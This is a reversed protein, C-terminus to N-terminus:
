AADALKIIEAMKLLSNGVAFIMKEGAFIPRDNSTANVLRMEKERDSRPLHADSMRLDYAGFLPGIVARAQEASCLTALAAELSKLGGRKEGKSVPAVAQAAGADISDATLRAVDKALELFGGDDLARFRHIRRRLNAEDDHARFISQGFRASWAAALEDLGATFVDEASTTEAPEAKVQSMLLEASVGGDPAVNFGAWHRRWWEPQTAVDYAYVTVLGAANVGFHISRCGPTEIGGTEATYWRLNADRKEALSAVAHPSFWLWQGIDEDDLKDAGIRAGGADIIFAQDSKVDDGRVRSSAKAPELWEDRWFETSVRWRKEGQRRFSWSRADTNRDTEPGMTPVDDDPDVDNRSVHFVGVTSGHRMGDAGIAYAMAELRGDEVEAIKSGEEFGTSALDEVITTRSRYSAIRLACDRACLYDQLHESRMEIAAPSGDDDRRMRVVELYDEYPRLWRDGERILGLAVVIDQNLHWVNQTPGDVSQYLVPRVGADIEMNHSYVEAAKYFGAEAWPRAEASSSWSYQEGYKRLAHPVM